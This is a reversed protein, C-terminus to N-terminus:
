VLRRKMLLTFIVNRTAEQYKSNQTTWPGMLAQMALKVSYGGKDAQNAPGWSVLFLCCFLKIFHSVKQCSTQELHTDLLEMRKLRSRHVSPTPTVSHHLRESRGWAWVCLSHANLSVRDTHLWVDWVISSSFSFLHHTPWPWLGCHKALSELLTQLQTAWYKM